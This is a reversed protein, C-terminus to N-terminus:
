KGNDGAGDPLEPIIVPKMLPYHDINDAYIIYPTNGIGSNGIETANPYKTQYDSWYNGEVGNDWSNVSDIDYFFQIENNIFNNHHITNNLCQLEFHLSIQNDTVNNSLISNHSSGFFWIGAEVNTTIINVSINNYTSGYLYIGRKNETIRNGSLTNYDSFYLDVGFNGNNAITNGFLNNENGNLLVGNVENNVIINGSLTNRTADGIDIGMGFHRIQINKVTVNGECDFYIGTGSRNGQLTYGAGDIVVSGKEVVISVSLDDTFTYLSGDRKIKDTGEISGDSRIFITREAWSPFEPIEIQSMLPHNDLIASPHGYPTDGIGDGDADTGNYDSWYNRDIIPQTSLWISIVNNSKVRNNIMNNGIITNNGYVYAISIGNVNNEITNYTIVNNATGIWFGTDCDAVYNGIFTNNTSHGNDIGPAFNVIRLNKVTVNNSPTRSPDQGVNNTLDIGRGAGNGQVTFGAGDIVINSKQVQIGGSINATLTYINGNRQITNTGVVSGANSIYVSGLFQSKVPQVLIGGLLFSFILAMVLTLAIATRKMLVLCYHTLSRM